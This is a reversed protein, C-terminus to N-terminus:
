SSSALCLLCIDFQRDHAHVYFFTWRFIYCEAVPLPNCLVSFSSFLYVTVTLFFMYSHEVPCHPSVTWLLWRHIKYLDQFSTNFTGFTFFHDPLVLMTTYHALGRDHPVLMASWSSWKQGLERSFLGPVCQPHSWDKTDQVWVPTRSSTGLELIWSPESWWLWNPLSAASALGEREIQERETFATKWTSIFLDKFSFFLSFSLSVSISIM